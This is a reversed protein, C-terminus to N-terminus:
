FSDPLFEENLAEALSFPTDSPFTEIPFGTEDAALKRADQYIEDFIFEIFRNLSPSSQLVKRIRIRHERITSLWSKSQKNSQYKYKLLHLLVIRLNSELAHKESRGMAELEEILNPLDVAVLNGMSLQAVTTEIWQYFDQDYLSIDPQSAKVTTNIM